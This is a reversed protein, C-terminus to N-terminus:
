WNIICIFDNLDLLFWGFCTDFETSLILVVMLDGVILLLFGFTVDSEAAVIVGCSGWGFPLGADSEGWWTIWVTLSRIGFFDLDTITPTVPEWGEFVGGFFVMVVWEGTLEGICEGVFLSEKDKEPVWEDETNSSTWSVEVLSGGEENDSCVVLDCGIIGGDVWTNDLDETVLDTASVVIIVSSSLFVLEVTPEEFTGEETEPAGGGGGALKKAPMAEGGFNIQEFKFKFTFGASIIFLGFEPVFLFGVWPHLRELPSAEIGKIVFGFLRDRLINWLGALLCVEQGSVTVLFLINEVGITVM